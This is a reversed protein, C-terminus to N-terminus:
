DIQENTAWYKQQDFPNQSQIYSNPEGVILSTKRSRLTFEIDKRLKTEILQHSKVLTTPAGCIRTTPKSSEHTDDADPSDTQDQAKYMCPTLELKLYKLWTTYDESLM